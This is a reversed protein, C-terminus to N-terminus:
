AEGGSLLGRVLEVLTRREQKWSHQLYVQQGREAM